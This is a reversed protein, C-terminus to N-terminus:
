SPSSREMKEHSGYCRQQKRKQLLICYNGRHLMRSLFVAPRGGQNLTTSIIVDLADSEVVFLLTQDTSQFLVHELESELNRFAQCAEDKLPFPEARELRKKDSFQQINM